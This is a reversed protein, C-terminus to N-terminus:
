KQRIYSSQIRKHLPIFIHTKNVTIGNGKMDYSFLMETAFGSFDYSHLAMVIYPWLQMPGYSFLMETASGSFLWTGMWAEGMPQCVSEIDCCMPQLDPEIGGKTQHIRSHLPTKGNWFVDAGVNSANSPATQTSKKPGLGSLLSWSNWKVPARAKQVPQESVYWDSFKFASMFGTVMAKSM